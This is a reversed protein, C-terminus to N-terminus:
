LDLLKTPSAAITKARRRYGRTTTIDTQRAHAMVQEDLAGHLYAETICGARLGHPSLREGEPVTLGALAARRRLIKWVGNGTLRGEITGAATLRPFIAGYAIGARRLWTELARVPCTGAGSGRTIGVDAGKGEQDGKAHRIRLVLGEATFRVDSHDLAVLESRRLCGAFGILLLARDRLGPLGARGGPDDGCAGLLLRIETSTLAAAPQVPRRQLRLIGRLSSTIAPDPSWVLGARRHRHAIAALILRLGSRGLSEARAALYGAVLVPAAPLSPVGQDICWLHFAAWDDQYIKETAPSVAREAHGIAKAIAAGLPGDALHALAPPLAERALRLLRQTEPDVPVTATDASPLAATGRRGARPHGPLPRGASASPM